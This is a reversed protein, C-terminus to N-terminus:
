RKRAGQRGAANPFRRAPPGDARAPASGLRTGLPSAGDIEQQTREPIRATEARATREAIARMLGPTGVAANRRRRASEILANRVTAAAQRDATDEPLDDM